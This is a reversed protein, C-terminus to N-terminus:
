SSALAGAIRDVIERLIAPSTGINLRAFGAGGTGYTPGASLAVRAREVLVAAPDDGLGCASLDIWALYSAQPPVYTAEPVQLALLEALLRRNGDIIAVVDDLWAGGDQYAAVAAIAGLHGTGYTVELPLRSAVLERTHGTAVLQACKLGPLNWAKSASVLIIANADDPAVSLYPVHEAGPLVLPGHIEDSIVAVGHADALAAIAALTEVSPVSGTPNHPNSMVFATVDPRAFAEETASLDWDYSGDAARAMPVEVIRRGVVDRITSFFPAYVPPNIVVGDGPQTLMLLAQAVGTLVDPIPTIRDIPISWGWTRDAFAALADALGNASRYGTDSRDIAAHLAGAIPAALPFDMEAVWAPIVDAPYYQYKASQRERLAALDIADVDFTPM